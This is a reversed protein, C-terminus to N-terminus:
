FRHGGGSSRGGGGSFGGGGGGGSSSSSPPNYVRKEGTVKANFNNLVFKSDTNKALKNLSVKKKRSSLYAYLFCVFVSLILSSIASTFYRLPEAIKDGELVSYMQQFAVKACSYYDGNSAYSYVNDTITFSKANTIIDSNDGKSYIYIERVKMDILFISGSDYDGFNKSYFQAAKSSVASYDTNVSVFAVHGYELLPTMYDELKIKEEESLLNAGDDIILKYTTEAKINFPLLIILFIIIYNLFRKM